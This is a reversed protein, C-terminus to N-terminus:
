NPNQVAIVKFVDPFIRKVELLASQTTNPSSTSADNDLSNNVGDSEEFYKSRQQPSAESVLDVGHLNLLELVQHSIKRQRLAMAANNLSQSEFGNLNTLTDMKVDFVKSNTYPHLSHIVIDIPAIFVGSEGIALDPSSLMAHAQGATVRGVISVDGYLVQAHVRRGDRTVGTYRGSLDAVLSVINKQGFSNAIKAGVCLKACHEGKIIVTFTRGNIVSEVNLNKYILNKNTLFYVLFYFHNGIKICDIRCHKSNKVYVEQETILCGLFTDRSANWDCKVPTFKATRPLKITSFTFDVTICANYVINPSNEIVSKDMVIGDEVCAGNVNGFACWLRLNWLNPSNGGIAKGHILNYYDAVLQANEVQEMLMEGGDYMEYLKLLAGEEKKNSRTEDIIPPLPPVSAECRAFYARQRESLPCGRELVALQFLKEKDTANADFYCTIGLSSKMLQRHMPSTTEAISGKVNNITVTTKAPLNKMLGCPHVAKVAHSFLDGEDFVIENPYMAVEATTFFTDFRSNYKIPISATTFFLVYPKYYKVTVNPMKQKIEIFVDFDWDINCDTIFGNILAIVRTPQQQQQQHQREHIQHLFNYFKMQDTAETMIVYDCLVSHEGATKLDKTNLLCLYNVADQPFNCFKSNKFAENAARSVNQLFMVTKNSRGDHLTSDYNQPYNKAWAKNEYMNNKSLVTYLNGIEFARSLKVQGANKKREWRNNDYDIYKNMITVGSLIQRNRLDNIDYPHQLICDFVNYYEQVSVERRNGIFPNEYNILNIWENCELNTSTNGKYTFQLIKNQYKLALGSNAVYLFWELSKTNKYERVHMSMADFTSFSSYIKPVGRSVISGWQARSKIVEDRGRIHFDIFSGLLIPVSKHNDKRCNNDYRICAMYSNRRKIVNEEFKEASNYEDYCSCDYIIRKGIQYNFTTLLFAEFFVM